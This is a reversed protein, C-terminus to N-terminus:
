RLTSTDLIAIRVTSSGTTLDWAAPLQVAPYHWQRPYHPDTPTASLEFQWNPHAYEVDDRARLEDIRAWTEAIPDKAVLNAGADVDFQVVSTDATLEEIHMKTALEARTKAEASARFKVIAEFPVFPPMAARDEPVAPLDDDDVSDVPTDEKDITSDVSANDDVIPEDNDVVTTIGCSAILLSLALSTSLYQWKHRFSTM